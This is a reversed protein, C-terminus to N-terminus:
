AAHGFPLGGEGDMSGEDEEVKTTSSHSKDITTNNSDGAHDKAPTDSQHDDNAATSKATASKRARKRRPQTISDEQGDKGDNTAKRKHQGCSSGATM